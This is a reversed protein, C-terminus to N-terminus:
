AAGPASRALRLRRGEWVRSLGSENLMQGATLATEERSPTPVRRAPAGAALAVAANARSIPSVM